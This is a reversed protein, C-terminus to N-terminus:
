LKKSMHLTVSENGKFKRDIARLVLISLLFTVVGAGFSLLERNDTTRFVFAGIVIGLLFLVLPVAYLLITLRMVGTSNAVVEVTDGVSAGLTNPITVIHTKTECGGCKACGSEGGGCGGAREISVRAMGDETHVVLGSKLM